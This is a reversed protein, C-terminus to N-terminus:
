ESLHAESLVKIEATLLANPPIVGPVGEDGYALHPAIRLKRLGGIRMDQIGYFLGNILQERDIRVDAILTTGDDSLEAHALNDRISQWRVPEGRNLWMKLSIRYYCHRKLLEGEGESDQLIEIGPRM